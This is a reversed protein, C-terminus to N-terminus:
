GGVKKLGYNAGKKCGVWLGGVEGFNIKSDLVMELFDSIFMPYTVNASCDRLIVRVASRGREYDEVMLTTHFPTNARWEPQPGYSHAYELMNGDSDFPIEAIAM